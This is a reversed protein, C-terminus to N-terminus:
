EAWSQQESQFDKSRKSWSRQESWSKPMIRQSKYSTM